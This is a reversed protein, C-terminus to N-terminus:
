GCECPVLIKGRNHLNEAPDVTDIFEDENM